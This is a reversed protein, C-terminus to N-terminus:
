NESKPKIKRVFVKENKFKNAIDPPNVAFNKFDITQEPKGDVTEVWRHPFNLNGAKRFNSFKIQREVEKAESSGKKLEVIVKKSVNGKEDKSAFVMEHHKESFSIMQPLNTSADLYLKFVAGKSEVEIINSAKGDVTGEGIFKYNAEVGEPASLLLAVTTRLFENQRPFGSSRFNMGGEGIKDITLVNGDKKTWVTKDGKSDIKEEVIVTKGDESTWSKDGDGKKRVIVKEEVKDKEDGSNKNMKRVVIKKGDDSTWTDGNSSDIEVDIGDTGDGSVIVTEVLKINNGDKSEDPEGIKITKAFKGLFEFNIEISGVKKEGNTTQIHSIEGSITMSKVADIASEGGIAQRSRKILEEAKADASLNASADSILATVGIFFFAAIFATVIFSRM